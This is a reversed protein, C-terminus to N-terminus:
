VFYHKNSNFCQSCKKKQQQQYWSYIITYWEIHKYVIVVLLCPYLCVAMEEFMQLALGLGDVLNSYSTSEFWSIVMKLLQTNSRKLFCDGYNNCSYIGMIKQLWQETGLNFTSSTNITYLYSFSCVIVCYLSKVEFTFVGM